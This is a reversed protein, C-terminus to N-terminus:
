VAEPMICQCSSAVQVVIGMLLNELKVYMEMFGWIQNIQTLM